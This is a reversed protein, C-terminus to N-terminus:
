CKTFEGRSAGVPSHVEFTCSEDGLHSCCLEHFHAALPTSVKHAKGGVGVLNHHLWIQLSLPALLLPVNMNCAPGVLSTHMCLWM